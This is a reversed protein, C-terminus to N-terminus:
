VPLGGLRTRDPRARFDASFMDPSFQQGHRHDLGWWRDPRRRRRPAEM